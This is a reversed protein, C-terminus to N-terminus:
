AGESLLERAKMGLQTGANASWVYVVPEDIKPLDATAVHAILGAEGIYDILALGLEESTM